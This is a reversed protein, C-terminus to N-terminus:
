ANIMTRFTHVIGIKGFVLTRINGKPREPWEEGPGYCGLVPMTWMAATCNLRDLIVPLQRPVAVALRGHLEPVKVVAESHSQLGYVASLSISQLRAIIIYNTITFIIIFAYKYKGMAMKHAGDDPGVTCIVIDSPNPTKRL